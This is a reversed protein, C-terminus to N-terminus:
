GIGGVMVVNSFDGEALRRKEIWFRAQDSDGLAFGLDQDYDVALLCIWDGSRNNAPLSGPWWFDNPFLVGNFMAHCAFCVTKNGPGTATGERDVETHKEINQWADARAFTGDRCIESDDSLSYDCIETREFTFNWKTFGKTPNIEYAGVVCLPDADLDLPLGPPTEAPKYKSVDQPVYIVSSQGDAAHSRMPEYVTDVFFFLTGVDPMEPYGDIRPISALNIQALFHMPVDPRDEDGTRFIPWEVGPPLTPHGGFWCGAAGPEESNPVKRLHFGPLMFEKLHDPPTETDTTSSLIKM